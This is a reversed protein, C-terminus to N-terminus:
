PSHAEFAAAKWDSGTGEGSETRLVLFSHLLYAKPELQPDLVLTELVFTWNKRGLSSM